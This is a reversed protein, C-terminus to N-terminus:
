QYTKKMVQIIEQYMEEFEMEEDKLYNNLQEYVIKSTEPIRNTEEANISNGYNLKLIKATLGKVILEDINTNQDQFKSQKVLSDLEKDYYKSYLADTYLHSNEHIVIRRYDKNWKLELKKISDNPEDCLYTILFLRENEPNNTFTIAKNTIRNLPDFLIKLYTEEKTRYFTNLKKSIENSELSDRFNKFSINYENKFNITRRFDKLLISLSDLNEGYWGYQNSLRYIDLDDKPLLNDDLCLALTPLDASWIDGERIKQVLPHDKHKKYPEFNTEYYDTKCPRLSQDISDEIALFYAVRFLEVRDDIYISTTTKTIELDPQKPKCSITLLFFLILTLIKSAM